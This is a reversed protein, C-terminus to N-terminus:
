VSLAPAAGTATGGAYARLVKAVGAAVVQSIPQNGNAASGTASGPAASTSAAVAGSGHHHHHHHHRQMADTPSAAPAQKGAGTQARLDSILTALDAALKQEPSVSAAAKDGNPATGDGSAARAGQAQILLAQIDSRLNQFSNAPAARSPNAGPAAPGFSGRAPGNQGFPKASTANRPSGALPGVTATWPAAPPESRLSGISM